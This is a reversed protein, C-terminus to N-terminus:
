VCVDDRFGELKKEGIGSVRTLDDVSSFPGNKDRDAVIRQALADGIGNLQTLQEATARNVNLPGSSAGGAEGGEGQGPAGGQAWQGEEVQRASPVIVQQGDQLLAALNVSDPAAEETMGGAARVADDLRADPALEYVGPVAVCGGVHVMISPSDEAGDSGDAGEGQAQGGEPLADGSPPASSDPASAALDGDGVVAVPPQLAGMLGVAAVLMAAIAAVAVLPARARLRKDLDMQNVEDIFGM